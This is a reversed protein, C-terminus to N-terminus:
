RANQRKSVGHLLTTACLKIFPAGPPEPLVSASLPEKTSFKEHLVRSSVDTTPSRQRADLCREPGLAAAQVSTSLLRHGGRHSGRGGHSRTALPSEAPLPAVIPLSANLSVHTPKHGSVKREACPQARLIEFDLDFPGAAFASQRGRPRPSRRESKGCSSWVRVRRIDSPSAAGLSEGASDPSRTLAYWSGSPPSSGLLEKPHRQTYTSSRGQDQQM